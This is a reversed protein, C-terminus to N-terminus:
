KMLIMKRVKVFNDTELRYLYIGSAVRNGSENRGNWCATQAGSGLEKNLLTKVKKGLINYVTLNVHQNTPVVFNITTSPNFPNPYNQSLKYSMPVGPDQGEDIGVYEDLQLGVAAYNYIKIEDFYGEFYPPYDGGASKGIRLPETANLVPTDFGLSKRELVVDSEDSLQCIGFYATTCDAPAKQV